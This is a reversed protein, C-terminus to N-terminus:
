SESGTPRHHLVATAAYAAVLALLGCWLPWHRTVPAARVACFATMGALMGAVALGAPRPLGILRACLFVAALCAPVGIAASGVLVARFEHQGDLSSPLRMVSQVLFVCLTLVGAAVAGAVTGKFLRLTLRDTM